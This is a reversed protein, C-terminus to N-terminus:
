PEKRKIGLSGCGLPERELVYSSFFIIHIANYLFKLIGLMLLSIEQIQWCNQKVNNRNNMNKTIKNLDQEALNLYSKKVIRDIM